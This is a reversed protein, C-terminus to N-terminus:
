RLRSSISGIMQKIVKALVPYDNHTSVSFSLATKILNDM